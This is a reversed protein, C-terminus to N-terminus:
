RSKRYQDTLPLYRTVLPCHIIIPKREPQVDVEVGDSIRDLLIVGFQQRERRLKNEEFNYRFKGNTDVFRNPCDVPLTLDTASSRSFHQHADSDHVYFRYGQQIRGLRPHRGVILIWDFGQEIRCRIRAELTGEASRNRLVGQNREEKRHAKQHEEELVVSGHVVDHGLRDHHLIIRCRHEPPALPHDTSPTLHLYTKLTM